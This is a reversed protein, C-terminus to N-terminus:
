VQSPSTSQNDIKAKTQFICIWEKGSPAAKPATFIATEGTVATCVFATKDLMVPM